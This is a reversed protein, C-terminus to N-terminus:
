QSVQVLADIEEDTKDALDPRMQRLAEYLREKSQYKPINLMDDFNALIALTERLKTTAEELTEVTATLAAVAADGRAYLLNHLDARDALPRDAMPGQEM